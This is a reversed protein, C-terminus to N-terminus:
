WRNVWGSRARVIPKRKPKMEVAKQEPAITVDSPIEALDEGEGTSPKVESQAYTKSTELTKKLRSWNPNLHYLAALAMVRCDLAENRARTKIWERRIFGRVVHGRSEEATLMSFYNENFGAEPDDTYHMYGPGFEDQKLRSMIIGKATDTGIRYQAAKLKNNRSVASLVGKGVTNEGKSAIVNRHFLRKTYRLVHDQFAGSDIFAATIPLQVGDERKFKRNLFEDVKGWTAPNDYRGPIVHYKVGWSEEGEGWAATEIEIRDSQVDCGATIVLSEAPLQKYSERRKLLADKEVKETEDEWTEALFTNVWVMLSRKGKRKAEIFQEAFEHLYSKFARKKGMLRYIGNLHRGRVGKFPATARWEGRHISEIRQSDTWHEQCHECEYWADCTSEDDLWKVQAWQLHQFQGCAHCPVFWRQKDSREWISEIRSMGKITPTSSRLKVADEFTEARKDALSIPDGEKTDEMADIEDLIVVRKSRQRLGSPSNAGCITIEGGPYHKNLITNGSDRSKSERVLQRLVPTEAIAESLKDKSFAEASDITPYVLLISSPYQHVFYGTIVMISATKCLQSAIM